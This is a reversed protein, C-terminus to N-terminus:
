KNQEKISYNLAYNNNSHLGIWKYVMFNVTSILLFFLNCLKKRVAPYNDRIIKSKIEQKFYKEFGVAAGNKNTGTTQPKRVQLSIFHPQKNVM